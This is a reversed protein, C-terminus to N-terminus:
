KTTSVAITWAQVLFRDDKSFLRSETTSDRVSSRRSRRVGTHNSDRLVSMM